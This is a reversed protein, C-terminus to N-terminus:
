ISLFYYLPPKPNVQGSSKLVGTLLAALDRPFVQRLGGALCALPVLQLNSENNTQRQRKTWNEPNRAPRLGAGIRLHSEPFQVFRERKDLKM